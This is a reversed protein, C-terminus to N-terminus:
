DKVYCLVVRVERKMFQLKFSERGQKVHTIILSLVVFDWMCCPCLNQVCHLTNPTGTKHALRRFALMQTNRVSLLNWDQESIVENYPMQHKIAM